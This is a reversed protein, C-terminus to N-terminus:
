KKRTLKIEMMKYEKGTQPDPGYMTVEQTNDDIIKLVERYTCIKGPRCVDPMTGSMSRTKTAADWDGEMTMIGTSMNDVWSSTFKKVANDYATISMGEFPMGMMDGSHKSIQYKGGLTMSNVATAPSKMPAAGETSWVLMEGSWTGNWSELLKHMEGPTGYEMMKQMQTASDIPVWAEDAKAAAASSDKKDADNSANSCAAFLLVAASCITLFMSKM